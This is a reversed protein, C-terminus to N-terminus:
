AAGIVDVRMSRRREDDARERAAPGDVARHVRRRSHNARHLQDESERRETLVIRRRRRHVVYKLRRRVGCREYMEGCAQRDVLLVLRGRPTRFGRQPHVEGLRIERRLAFQVLDDPSRDLAGVGHHRGGDAAREDALRGVAVRVVVIARPPSGASGIASALAREPNPSSLVANCIVGTSRTASWNSASPLPVISIAFRKRRRSHSISARRTESNALSPADFPVSARATACARPSTTMSTSWRAESYSRSTESYPAQPKATPHKFSGSYP